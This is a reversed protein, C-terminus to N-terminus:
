LPDVTIIIIGKIISYLDFVITASTPGRQRYAPLGDSRLYYLRGRSRFIRNVNFLM